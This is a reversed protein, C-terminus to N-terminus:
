GDDQMSMEDELKWIQFSSSWTAESFEQMLASAAEPSGLNESLFDMFTQEGEDMDAFNKHPIVISVSPKGGITESWIWSHEPTAWGQNLAIQSIKDRAADFQGLKDNKLKFETVAFYTYPGGDLNWHSNSWDMREFYHAVHGILPAVNETFHKRINEANESWETYADHDAWNFCCYRVAVRGLDDGLLPTYASWVRPDGNEKRVAMHEALAKSFEASSGEKPTMVWIDVLPPPNDAAPLAAPACLLLAAALSTLMRLSMSQM